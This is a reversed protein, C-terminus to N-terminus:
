IIYGNPNRCRVSSKVSFGIDSVARGTMVSWLVTVAERAQHLDDTLRLFGVPYMVQHLAVLDPSTSPLCLGEAGNRLWAGAPRPRQRDVPPRYGTGHASPGPVTIILQAATQTIRLHPRLRWSLAACHTDGLHVRRPWGVPGQRGCGVGCEGKQPGPSGSPCWGTGCLRTVNPAEPLMDSNRICCVPFM